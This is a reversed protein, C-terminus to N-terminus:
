AQPGQLTQPGWSIKNGCYDRRFPREWTQGTFPDTFMGKHPYFTGAFWDCIGGSVGERPASRRPSPGTVAFQASSGTQGDGDIEAVQVVIDKEAHLAGFPVGVATRDEGEAVLRYSSPTCGAGKACSAVFWWYYYRGAKGNEVAATFQAEGAVRVSAPGQIRVALTDSAGVRARAFRIPAAARERALTGQQVVEGSYGAPAPAAKTASSCGAVVVVYSSLVLRVKSRM